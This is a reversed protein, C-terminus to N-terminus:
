KLVIGEKELGKLLDEKKKKSRKKTVRRRQEFPRGSADWRMLKTGLPVVPGQIDVSTTVINAPVTM